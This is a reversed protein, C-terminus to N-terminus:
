AARHFVRQRRRQRRMTESPTEGFRQRYAISFRGLHGFGCDMAIDSILSGRGQEALRDRALDLRLNRLHQMPSVQRFRMFNSQLTRASVGSSRVLDALTIADTLRQKMFLEARRVDRSVIQDTGARKVVFPSGAAKLLSTLLRETQEAVEPNDAITRLMAPSSLILHIQQLWPTSSFQLSSIRNNPDDLANSHAVRPDIRVIVRVCDASFQGTLRHYPRTMFGSGVDLHIRNGDVELDASGRLCTMALFYDASIDVDIRMAAGFELLAFSLPGIQCGGIRPPRLRDGLPTLMPRVLLQSIHGRIDPENNLATRPQSSAVSEM